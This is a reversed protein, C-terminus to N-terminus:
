YNFEARLFLGQALVDGHSSGVKGVAWYEEFSYGATLRYRGDPRALWSLGAQVGLMPVGQSGHADVSGFGDPQNPDGVTESYHQTITGLLEAFEARSFFALGTGPLERTLDLAVSPGAGFFHDTVRQGIVQGQGYSDFYISSLKAGMEWRMAWLAGLPHEHTSYALGVTNIDLRSYVVGDGAFDFNSVIERGDSSINRYTLLISGVDYGLRYGLTIQPAVTTDLGAAPLTVVDGVGFPQVTVPASLGNTVHPFLLGLEVDFFLGPRPGTPPLIMPSEAAAPPPPPPPPPVEAVGFQGPPPPPPPPLLLPADGPEPVAKVAGPPPPQAVATGAVLLGFVTVLGLAARKM